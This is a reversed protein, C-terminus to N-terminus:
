GTPNVQYLLTRPESEHNLVSNMPRSMWGPQVMLVKRKDKFDRDHERIKTESKIRPTVLYGLTIKFEYNEKRQRGPALITPM